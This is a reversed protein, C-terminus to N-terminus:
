ASDLLEAITAALRGVDAAVLAEIACTAQGAATHWALAYDALTTLPLEAPALGEAIADLTGAPVM